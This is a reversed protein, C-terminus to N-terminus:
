ACRDIVARARAQMTSVDFASRSLALAAARRMEAHEADERWAELASALRAPHGPDVVGEYPLTWGLPGLLHHAEGVDTALVPLGCALYLPLKGTTRVQGVPNNTQTSVGVDMAGIFRAVESSPVRGVFRCRDLLGLEAARRELIERGDGDGVILAHIQPSSAALAEIVDWGYTLGLRRAHVLSGVLGVVFADQLGLEARLATGDAPRAGPPALDPIVTTDDRALFRVHERGRVVVHCARRLMFAEGARIVVRTTPDHSGTSRALEYALDGTDVVFPIGRVFCAAAAAVTTKGVDVLYALRMEKRLVVRV